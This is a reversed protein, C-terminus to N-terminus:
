QIKIGRLSDNALLSASGFSVTFFICVLCVMSLFSLIFPTAYWVRSEGSAVLLKINGATVCEERESLVNMEAESLLLQVADGQMTQPLDPRVRQRDRQSLNYLKPAHISINPYMEPNKWDAQSISRMRAMAENQLRTPRSLVHILIMDCTVTAFLSTLSVLLGVLYEWHQAALLYFGHVAFARLLLGLVVLWTLVGFCIFGFLSCVTSTLAFSKVGMTWKQVAYVVSMVMVKTFSIASCAGLCLLVAQNFLTVMM